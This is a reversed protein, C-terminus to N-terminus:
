GTFPALVISGVGFAFWLAMEWVLRRRAPDTPSHSNALTVQNYVSGASLLAEVANEPPTLDPNKELREVASGPTEANVPAHLNKFQEKDLQSFDAWEEDSLTKDGNKDAVLLLSNWITDVFWNRFHARDVHDTALDGDERVAGDALSLAEYDSLAFSAVEAGEIELVTLEYVDIVGDNNVDLIDFFGQFKQPSRLLMRELDDKTCIVMAAMNKAAAEKAGDDDLHDRVGGLLALSLVLESIM